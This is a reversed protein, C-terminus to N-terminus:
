ELNKRIIEIQVPATNMEKGNSTLDVKQAESWRESFKNRMILSWLRSNFGQGGNTAMSSHAMSFWYNECLKNYEGIAKAYAKNKSLLMEHDSWSIGLEIMFETIHKGKSGADLILDLWEQSISNNTIKKKNDSM